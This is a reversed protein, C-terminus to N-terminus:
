YKINTMDNEFKKSYSMVETQTLNINNITFYYYPLATDEPRLKLKTYYLFQNNTKNRSILTSKFNGDNNLVKGSLYQLSIPETIRNFNDDQPTSFIRGCWIYSITLDLPKIVDKSLSAIGASLFIDGEKLNEIKYEYYKNELNKKYNSDFLLVESGKNSSNHWLMAISEPRDQSIYSSSNGHTLSGFIVCDNNMLEVNKSSGVFTDVSLIANSGDFTRIWNKMWPLLGFSRKSWINDWKIKGQTTYYITNACNQYGNNELIFIQKNWIYSFCLGTNQKVTQDITQSSSNGITQSSSNGITQLLNEENTEFSEFLNKNFSKCVLTLKDGYSVNDIFYEGVNIGNHTQIIKDNLLIDCSRDACVYIYMGSTVNINFTDCTMRDSLLKNIVTGQEGWNLSISNNTNAGCGYYKKNPDTTSTMSFLPNDETGCIGCLLKPDSLYANSMCINDISRTDNPNNKKYEKGWGNICNQLIYKKSYDSYNTFYDKGNKYYILGGVIIVLIIILIILKYSGESKKINM